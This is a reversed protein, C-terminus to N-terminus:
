LIHLLERIKQSNKVISYLISSVRFDSKFLFNLDPKKITYRFDCFSRGPMYYICSARQSHVSQILNVYCPSAGEVSTDPDLAGFVSRKGHHCCCKKIRPDAYQSATRPDCIYETHFLDKLCKTCFCPPLFMIQIQITCLYFFAHDRAKICFFHSGGNNKQPHQGSSEPFCGHSIGPAAHDSFSRYIKMQICKM